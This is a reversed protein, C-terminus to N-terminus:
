LHNILWNENLIYWEITKKIGSDFNEKPYWNLYKNIKKSNIAYRFDHGPRDDVFSILKNYDNISKSPKLDNLITCIKEAMELNTVECNGGIAYNQGIKGHNLVLDLAKCHDNVYIWDRVNSGDGYIPIPNQNLCKSIIMPILKEPNQYPGYNNSCNTIIIPLGYTKNWARVLHDSSAKSASYPSNPNYPSNENFYKDKGLSGYVEDTSVHVFMFNDIKNSDYYKLSADLLNATGVINTDIFKLPNKISRDVHSEAAFHLIKEPKFDKIVKFVLDYDCIDGQIFNYNQNKELNKLNGSSGAYTLKDLNLINFKKNKLTELIFNTGIFGCGGTILINM